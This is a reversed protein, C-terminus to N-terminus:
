VNPCDDQGKQLAVWHANFEAATMKSYRKQCGRCKDDSDKKVTTGANWATKSGATKAIKMKKGIYGAM